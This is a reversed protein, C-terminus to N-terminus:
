QPTLNTWAARLKVHTEASAVEGESADVAGMADLVPNITCASLAKTSGKPMTAAVGSAVQLARALAM